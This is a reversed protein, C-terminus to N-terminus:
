DRFGGFYSYLGGCRKLCGRVGRLKQFVPESDDLARQEDYNGTEIQEMLPDKLCDYGQLLLNELYSDIIVTDSYLAKFIDELRHAITKIAELEVSAAGGKISHAARMIGHVKAKDKTERITLLGEEIAQLLEPAEEIFFQYAHDRIDSNIM